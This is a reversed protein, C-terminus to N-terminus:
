AECSAIEGDKTSPAMIWRWMPYKIPIYIFIHKQTLNTRGTINGTTERWCIYNMNPCRHTRGNPRHQPCVPQRLMRSPPSLTRGFWGPGKKTYITNLDKLRGLWAVVHLDLQSSSPFFSCTQKYLKYIYIYQRILGAHDIIICTWSQKPPFEHVILLCSIYSWGLNNAFTTSSFFLTLFCLRWHVFSAM